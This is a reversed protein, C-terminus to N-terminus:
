ASAERFLGAKLCRALKLRARHLMVGLHSATIQLTQCIAETGQGELERLIFADRQAEGLGELCHALHQWFEQREVEQHPDQNLFGPSSRWHGDAQFMLEEIGDSDGDFSGVPRQRERARVHDIIKRKLIALLWSRVPAEGRYQERARLGAVLSEQLVEEAAEANGLRSHAYRYLYDGHEDLWHEPDTRSLPPPSTM